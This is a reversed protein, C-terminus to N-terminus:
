GFVKISFTKTHFENLADQARKQADRWESPEVYLPKPNGSKDRCFAESYKAAANWDDKFHRLLRFAGLAKLLERKTTRRSDSDKSKHYPQRDDPRIEKLLKAFDAKLNRNSRAWHWSLVRYETWRDETAAGWPNKATPVYTFLTDINTLGPMFEPDGIRWSLGDKGKYFFGPVIDVTSNLAMGKLGEVWRLQGPGPPPLRKKDRSKIEREHIQLWHQTPFEPWHSLFQLNDDHFATVPLNPFRRRLRNVWEIWRKPDNEPKPNAGCWQHLGVVKSIPTRRKRLEEVEAIVDPTELAYEWYYAAETQNDPLRNRDSFLWEEWPLGSSPKSRSPM